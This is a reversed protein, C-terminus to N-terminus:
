IPHDCYPTFLYISYIYHIGVKTEIPCDLILFNDANIAVPKLMLSSTPQSCLSSKCLIIKKEGYLKKTQM